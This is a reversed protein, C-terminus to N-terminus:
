VREISMPKDKMEQIKDLWLDVFKIGVRLSFKPYIQKNEADSSKLKPHEM